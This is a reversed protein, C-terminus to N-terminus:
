GGACAAIAHDLWARYWTLFTARDEGGSAEPHLGAYDAREDNWVNGAEDGTVVLWVRRACGLHCIPIAGNVMRSDFYRQEWVDLQREYEGAGRADDERSEDWEPRGSADNWPACHPFRESLVGVFGDGEAWPEDSRTGDMYGLSFVGYAPGAGGNGVRTLFSRYEDPLVIRHDAEFREITSTPVVPQVRFRHALAGHVQAEGGKRRLAELDELIGTFADQM